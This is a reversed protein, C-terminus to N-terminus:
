LSVGAFLAIRKTVEEKVAEKSRNLIKYPAVEKTEKLEEVLAEKWAVRIETNIHVVNMGAKIASVFDEDSVGSGGHLVQVVGTAEKIEGIRKIDLKPHPADKLKGHLNGVAPALMYVGTADVYKKAEEATTLLDDQAVGEPIEDLLNSSMGIYGLEGEIFAGTKNAYEVCKKTIEINEELSLKAGDFIVSDFGADVVEKVRELSYTHDANLFVPYGDARISQVLAVCQKVGIFDREGESVGIIVPIEEGAKESVEKAADVIAWLVEVTSINFHGIGIGRQRYDELYERYTRM